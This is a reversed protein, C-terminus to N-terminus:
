DEWGLDQLITDLKDTTLHGHYEDDIMAVPAIDCAGLCEVANLRFKGDPTTEGPKVNLKACLYELLNESGATACPLTVCVNIIHRGVPRHFYMSYFTAVSGVESAPLDLIEAIEELAQDPIYGLQDQAAYLAPM